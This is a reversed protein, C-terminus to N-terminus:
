QIQVRKSLETSLVVPLYVKSRQVSSSITDCYGQPALKVRHRNLRPAAARITRFTGLQELLLTLTEDTVPVLKRIVQEQGLLGLVRRWILPLQQVLHCGFSAWRACNNFRPTRNIAVRPCKPNRVGEPDLRSGRM